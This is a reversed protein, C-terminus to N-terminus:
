AGIYEYGFEGSNIERETWASGTRPSQEFIVIEHAWSTPLAWEGSHREVADELKFSPRMRTLGASTKRAYVGMAVGYIDAGLQDPLDGFTHLDKEGSVSSTVYTTTDDPPAEDVAAYNDGTNPTWDSESGAASPYITDVRLEGLLDNNVSGSSDLIYFDDIHYDSNSRNYFAWSDALDDPAGSHTTNVGSISYVEVGDRYIAVSGASSHIVIKFELFHWQQVNWLVGTDAELVTGDGNRIQLSQGTNKYIRVPTYGERRLGFTEQASADAGSGDVYHGFGVCITSTSTVLQPSRLQVSYDTVIAAIKVSGRSNDFRKAASATDYTIFSGGASAWGAGVMDTEDGLCDFGYFYILAM